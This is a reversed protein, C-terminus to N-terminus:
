HYYTSFESMYRRSGAENGSGDQFVVPAPFLLRYVIKTTVSVVIKPPVMPLILLSLVVSFWKVM